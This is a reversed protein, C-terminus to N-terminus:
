KKKKKPVYLEEFRKQGGKIASQQTTSMAFQEFKM